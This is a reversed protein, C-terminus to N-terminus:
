LKNIDDPQEGTLKYMLDITAKKALILEETASDIAIQSINIDKRYWGKDELIIESTNDIIGVESFIIDYNDVELPLLNLYEKLDKVKM